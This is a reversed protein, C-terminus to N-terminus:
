GRVVKMKIKQELKRRQARNLNPVVITEREGPATQAGKSARELYGAAIQRIKETSLPVGLKWSEGAIQRVIPDHDFIRPNKRYEQVLRLVMSEIRQRTTRNQIPSNPPLQIQAQDGLQRRTIQGGIESGQMTARQWPIPGDPTATFGRFVRPDKAAAALLRAAQEQDM